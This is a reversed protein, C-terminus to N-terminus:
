QVRHLRVDPMEIVQQAATSTAALGVDQMSKCPATSAPLHLSASCGCAPINLTQLGLKSEYAPEGAAHQALGATGLQWAECRRAWVAPRVLISYLVSRSKLLSSDGLCAAAMSLPFPTGADGKCCRRRFAGKMIPTATLGSHSFIWIQQGGTSM